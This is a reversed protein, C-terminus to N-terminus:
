CLWFRPPDMFVIKRPKSRNQIGYTVKAEWWLCCDAATEYWLWGSVLTKGNKVRKEGFFVTTMNCHILTMWIFEVMMPPTDPTGLVVGTNGSESCPSMPSLMYNEKCSFSMLTIHYPWLALDCPIFSSSDPPLWTYAEKKKGGGWHDCLSHKGWCHFNM